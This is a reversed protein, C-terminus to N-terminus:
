NWATTPNVNYNNMETIEIEVKVDTVRLRNTFSTCNLAIRQDTDVRLKDRKEQSASQGDVEVRIDHAPGDVVGTLEILVQGNQNGTKDLYIDVDLEYLKTPDLNQFFLPALVANLDAASRINQEELTISKRAWDNKIVPAVRRLRDQNRTAPLIRAIRIDFVNQASEFHLLPNGPLPLYQDFLRRAVPSVADLKQAHTGSTDDYAAQILGDPDQIPEIIYNIGYLDVGWVHTRPDAVGPRRQFHGSLYHDLFRVWLQLILNYHRGWAISLTAVNSDGKFEYGYLDSDDDLGYANNDADSNTVFNTRQANTTVDDGRRIVSNYHFSTRQNEDLDLQPVRNPRTTTSKVLIDGDHLYNLAEVPIPDPNNGRRVYVTFHGGPLRHVRVGSQNANVGTGDQWIRVTADEIIEQGNEAYPLGEWQAVFRLAVSAATFPTENKGLIVLGVETLFIGYDEEIKNGDAGYIVPETGTREFEIAVRNDTANRRYSFRVQENSQADAKEHVRGHIWRSLDTMRRSDEGSKTIFSVERPLRQNGNRDVGSIPSQRDKDEDVPRGGTTIMERTIAFSNLLSENAGAEALNELIHTLADLDVNDVSHSLLETIAALNADAEAKNEAIEGDQEDNKQNILEVIHAIALQDEINHVLQRITTKQTAVGTARRTVSAVELAYRKTFGQPGQSQPFKFWVRFAGPGMFNAAGLLSYAETGDATWGGVTVGNITGLNAIFNVLFNKEARVNGPRPAAKTIDLQGINGGSVTRGVTVEGILVIVRGFRAGQSVGPKQILIVFPVDQNHFIDTFKLLPVASGDNTLTPITLTRALVSSHTITASNVGKSALVYYDGAVDRPELNAPINDTAAIDLSRRDGYFDRFNGPTGIPLLDDDHAETSTLGDWNLGGAVSGDKLAAIEADQEMNDQVVGDIREGLDTDAQELEGDKARLAANERERALREERIARDTYQAEQSLNAMPSLEGSDTEFVINFSSGAGFDAAPFDIRQDVGDSVYVYATDNDSDTNGEVHRNPGGVQYREGNIHVFALPALWDVVETNTSQIAINVMGPTTSPEIRFIRLQPVNPVLTGLVDTGSRSYLITGGSSRALTMTAGGQIPRTLNLIIGPLEPSADLFADFERQTLEDPIEGIIGEVAAKFVQPSILRAEAVVGAELEAETAANPKRKIFALSAIDTEGFDAQVATKELWTITTAGEVTVERSVYTGGTLTNVWIVGATNADAPTPNRPLQVVFIQLNDVSM